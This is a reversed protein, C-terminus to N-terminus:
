TGSAQFDHEARGCARRGFPDDVIVRINKDHRALPVWKERMLYEKKLNKLLDGPIPTSHDFVVFNSQYFFELSQGLDNKSIKYDRMLVDELSERKELAEKKAQNLDEETILNNSLLYGFKTRKTKPDIRLQNYIAVGLVESIEQLLVPEEDTVPEEYVKKDIVEVVWFFERGYVIPMALIQRVPLGFRSDGGGSVPFDRYAEIQDSKNFDSIHIMKGENAIYGPLTQPGLVTKVDGTQGTFTYVDQRNKERVFVHAAEVRFLDILLPCIEAIM